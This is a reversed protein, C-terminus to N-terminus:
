RNKSKYKSMERIFEDDVGAAALRQLERISLNTYGADALKKVFAPDVGLARLSSADRATKIEVGAARMAKLWEATVGVARLSTFDRARKVDFGFERMQQVFEPSVGVARLSTADRAERIEFGAARMEQIFAPTVGVAKLSTIDRIGSVNMGAARMEKLFEPTVGVAKLSVAERAKKVEFGAARMSRIYEPTVGVASLSTVERLTLGPFITKMGDVYSLTVGTARLSILEDVTLKGDGLPRDAEENSDFDFDYDFGGALAAVPPPPLPTRPARPALAPSPMPAPMPDPGPVARPARPARPAALPTLGPFPMAPPAVPAIVPYPIEPADPADPAPPALAAYYGLDPALGAFDFDFDTDPSDIGAQVDVDGDPATLDLDTELDTELDADLDTDADTDVGADTTGGVVEVSAEAVRAAAASKQERQALAPLSPVVVAIALISLLAVAAAWRPSNSTREARGAAIRRIRDLLSGGNAAIVMPLTSARLEELRTLARAYQLPNGCIAVALDDCCNEREIRVRQSMWWVAPHYFMLTEVFAQLLNVFFDHRRIHALEHALVMEIHEPTLGTLTSTPILIVPRLSGIVSPVEVAASELLRVARRLGLSESLSAAVRQWQPKAPVAGRRLMQRARTWSVLLRSSLLIVGALWIAVIAPLAERASAATALLRDRAGLAASQALLVPIRTLPVRMTAEEDGPSLAIPAAAPDYARAATALFMVFVVALAGCGVAYRANASQKKMLALTAALVGAVLTAQWLLHLLAWGIAQAPPGTLLETAANM